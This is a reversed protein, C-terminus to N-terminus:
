LRIIIGARIRRRLDVNEPNAQRDKSYNSTPGQDWPDGTRSWVRLVNIHDFVNEAKVYLDLKVSKIHLVKSLRIDLQNTWPKRASNKEPLVTAEPDRSSPTYPLGSAATLLFNASVNQFPYLDFFAPGFENPM